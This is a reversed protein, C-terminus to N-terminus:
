ILLSRLAALDSAPMGLDALAFNTSTAGNHNYGFGRIQNGKFSSEQFGFGFMGVKQYQDRFHPIKFNRAGPQGNDAM